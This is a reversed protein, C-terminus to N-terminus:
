VHSELLNQALRRQRCLETRKENRSKAIRRQHQPAAHRRKELIELNHLGTEYQTKTIMVVRTVELACNKALAATRAKAPSTTRYFSWVNKTITIVEVAFYGYMTDKRKPKGMILM